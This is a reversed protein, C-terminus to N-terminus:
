ATGDPSVLGHVFHANFRVGPMRRRSAPDTLKRGEFGKGAVRHKSM